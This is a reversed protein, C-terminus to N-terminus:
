FDIKHNLVCFLFLQCVEREHDAKSGGTSGVGKALINKPYADRKLGRVSWLRAARDKLTGGCKLGLAELAEKLRDMGLSELESVDNFMGLRLPEKASPAGGNEKNDQQPHKADFETRWEQLMSDLSTLPNVSSFFNFLYSWLHNLYELYAAKSKVGAPIYFFSNFRDLYQLYDQESLQNKTLNCFELHLANLDFYKGFVEEGSFNVEVNIDPKFETSVAASPHKQHYERAANLSSYFSTFMESGRISKVEDLLLSESDVYIKMLEQNANVIKNVM